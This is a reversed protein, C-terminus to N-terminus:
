ERGRRFAEAATVRGATGRAAVSGAGLRGVHEDMYRIEADYIAITDGGAVAAATDISNIDLAFSRNTTLDGGGTLGTGAALTLSSAAIGSPSSNM